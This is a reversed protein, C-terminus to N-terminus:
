PLVSQRSPPDYPQLRPYEGTFPQNDLSDNAEPYATYCYSTPVPVSGETCDGKLPQDILAAPDTLIAFRAYRGVEDEHDIVSSGLSYFAGFSNIRPALYDAIPVANLAPGAAKVTVPLLLENLRTIKPLFRQSAKRQAPLAEIIGLLDSSIPGISFPAGEEFAPQLRPALDGVDQVLPRAESILPRAQELTSTGAALLRPLEAVGQELSATNAALADLTARGSGVITRIAQERGGLEQLVVASDSVLTGLQEEQGELADTLLYLEDLTRSLGGTTGNLREGNGERSVGEAFTDILSRVAARGDEDLFDFAEDFDVSALTDTLEDGAELEGAAPSGPDLLNLYADGLLSREGIQMKADAYIPGVADEDITFTVESVQDEYVYDVSNVRGVSVGKYLVAQKSPLTKSDKFRATLEYPSTVVSTPDPGEFRQNLFIFTIAAGIALLVSVIAGVRPVRHDV